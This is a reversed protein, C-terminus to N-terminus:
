SAAIYTITGQLITTSTLEAGTLLSMDAAGTDMFYMTATTANSTVVGSIVRPGSVVNQFNSVVISGAVGTTTQSTFPLATLTVTGSGATGTTRTISFNAIVLQGIKVYTGVKTQSTGGGGAFTLTPAWTNTTVTPVTAPFTGTFSGSFSGTARLNSATM